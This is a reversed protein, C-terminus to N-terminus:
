ANGPCHRHPPPTSSRGTAKGDRGGLAFSGGGTLLMDVAEEATMPEAPAPPEVIEADQGPLPVLRDPKPAPESAPLQRTNESLQDVPLEGTKGRPEDA